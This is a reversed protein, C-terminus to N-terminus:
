EAAGVQAPREAGDEGFRGPTRDEQGIVPQGGIM